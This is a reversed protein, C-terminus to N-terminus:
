SLTAKAVEVTTTLMNSLSVGEIVGEDDTVGDCVGDAETVGDIVGDDVDSLQLAGAVEVDVDVKTTDAVRDVISLVLLQDRVNKCVDTDELEAVCSGDDSVADTEVVNIDVAAAGEGEPVAHQSDGMPVTDANGVRGGDVERVVVDVRDVVRVPVLVRENVREDVRVRVFDREDDCEAVREIVGTGVTM